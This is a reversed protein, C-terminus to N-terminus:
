ANKIEFFNNNIYVLAAMIHSTNFMQKILEKYNDIQVQHHSLQEGTKFDIILYENANKLVLDPRYTKGEPTLIDTEVTFLQYNSLWEKFVTNANLQNFLEVVRQIVENNIFRQVMKNYAVEFNQTKFYQEIFYHFAEGFVIQEQNIWEDDFEKGAKILLKENWLKNSYYNITDVVEEKNDINSPIVEGVEYVNNNMLPENVFFDNVIQHVYKYDPLLQNTNDNKNKREYFDTIVILGNEPRTFAVYLLNINDLLSKNVEDIYVDEYVTNTLSKGLKLIYSPLEIEPLRNNLWVTENQLKIQWNVFPIIVYSFELGKSKHITLLQIANKNNQTNVSFSEKNLDWYELFMELDAAPNNTSFEHAVDLFTLLYADFALSPLYKNIISQILELLNLGNFFSAYLYEQFIDTKLQTNTENKGAGILQYSIDKSILGIQTAAYLWNYFLLNSTPNNIWKIYAIIFKVYVNNKILVSESSVVPIGKSILSESIQVLESNNRTLIAMDAYRVGKEALISIENLLIQIHHITSEEKTKQESLYIFKVYGGKNEPKVKQSHLHYIKNLHDPLLKKAWEFFRNNFEVINKKSRYNNELIKLQYYRKLTRERDKILENQQENLLHPLTDMQEVAGGRWRYIAQKSDGVLLCNYQEALANDILPLFNQFQLISTDQFEDILFHHYKEGLREYIYPAPESNIIYNIRKNFESIPVFGEEKRIVSFFYDIENLITVRYVNALFNEFVKIKPLHTEALCQLQNYIEKLDAAISQIANKISSSATKSFWVDEEIAKLVYTNPSELFEINRNAVRDFWAGIGKNGQYFDNVALGAEEILILAKQAVDTLQQILNNNLQLVKNKVYNFDKITFSKLKELHLISEEKTIAFSFKILENEINWSKDEETKDEAFKVLLDFLDERQEASQILTYVAESLFIKEDLRVEFNFPLNLEYAFTKVVKHVFKDITSINIDSYRHLM